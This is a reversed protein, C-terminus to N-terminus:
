FFMGYGDQSNCLYLCSAISKGTFLAHLNRSPCDRMPGMEISRDTSCAPVYMALLLAGALTEDSRKALKMGEM